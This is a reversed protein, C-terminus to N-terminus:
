CLRLCFYEGFRIKERRGREEEEERRAIELRKRKSNSFTIKSNHSESLNEETQEIHLGHGQTSSMENVMKYIDNLKPMIKEYMELSSISHAIRFCMNQASWKMLPTFTNNGMEVMMASSRYRAGMTWRRLIYIKPIKAVGEREFKKCSCTAMPEGDESCHRSFVVVQNCIIYKAHDSGDRIREALMSDSDRLEAQFISFMAKTYVEGGHREIPHGTRFNAMSNLTKFDENEEDIRRACLAKDYQMVFEDLPTQANVFGDFFSNISESRQTSTMGVTFIDKWYLSVWKHRIEFMKSLWHKDDINYTTKLEGWRNEFAEISESHHLWNNYDRMFGEERKLDILYKMSNRGIHWSCLRHGSNPFVKAIAKGMALDQDTIITQPHKREQTEDAILACGFLISKRHHNVGVFPAFPFCFRNTQYTTDFVVVDGFESYAMRSRGDAWFFCRTQGLEDLEMDFFFFDDNLKKEKFFKVIAMCEQGINNNRVGKLHNSCDDRTILACGTNSLTENLIRCMQSPGVRSKHLTEMLNKCTENIHRHSRMKKVKSPTCLLHHNHEDDFTKITWVGSEMRSVVMRAHCNTRTDRRRQITKGTQRKDTMCKAGEKDCVFHWCTILQSCSSRYVHGRRVGFGKSMAYDLYYRFAENKDQFEMGVFPTRALEHKDQSQPSMPLEQGNQTELEENIGCPNLENLDIEINEFISDDDNIDEM